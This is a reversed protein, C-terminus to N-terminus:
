YICNQMMMKTVITNWPILADSHWTSDIKGSYFINRDVDKNICRQACGKHM